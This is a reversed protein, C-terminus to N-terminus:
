LEGRFARQTLSNFIVGAEDKSYILKDKLKQVTNLCDIFERQTKIPPVPIKAKCLSSVNLHQQIQGQQEGLVLQKGGNYNFYHCLYEPFVESKNPTAILIDIANAGNLEQPVVACTGPQGSRVLLVDDKWVRTKALKTINDEHSFYVLNNTEIHNARINLSRLAPVGSLQYYSAPRVVIGVTIRTCIESCKSINWRKPNTVPDGFMDLFTARLFDDALKIAAQRKRRIADAKDLIAVIRKQETFPPLPIQIKAVQEPRARLLSGGVGSITKLFQFHFYETLLAYRLFPPYFENSRYVIWKSSAIQRNGRKEGVVWVRQIHPAIRSLLVDNPRV